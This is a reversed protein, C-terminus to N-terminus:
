RAAPPYAPREHAKRLVGERDFLLALEPVERPDRTGHGRYVWVEYGSDFKVKEATGLRAQVEDKTNRGPQLAQAATVVTMAPDTFRPPEPTGEGGGFLPAGACGALTALAMLSSALLRM